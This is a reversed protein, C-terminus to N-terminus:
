SFKLKRNIRKLLNIMSYIRSAKILKASLPFPYNKKRGFEVIEKMLPDNSNLLKVFYQRRIKKYTDINFVLNYLDLRDAIELTAM